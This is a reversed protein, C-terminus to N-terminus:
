DEEDGEVDRFNDIAFRKARCRLSGPNGVVRTAVAGVGV